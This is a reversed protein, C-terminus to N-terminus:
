APNNLTLELPRTFLRGRCKLIHLRLHKDMQELHLRLAAPSNRNASGAPRFLFASAGSSEAALQLRRLQRDGLKQPWGLVAAADSRLAQELAWLDDEQRQSTNVILLRELALGQRQLAPAYPTFPPHIWFTTHGKRTMRALAPIILQLEGQGPYDFLIETLMGRPWGGEPLANDLQAYGSPWGQGTTTSRRAHFQHEKGQWILPHQLVSHLSM